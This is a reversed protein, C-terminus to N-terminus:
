KTPINFYSCCTLDHARVPAFRTTPKDNGSQDHLKRTVVPNVAICVVCRCGRTENTRSGDLYESEKHKM